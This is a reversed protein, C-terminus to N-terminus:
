TILLWINRPLGFKLWADPIMSKANGIRKTVLIFDLGQFQCVAMWLDERLGPPAENDAWDSMSNIFVRIRKGTCVAKRNLRNLAEHWSATPRREAGSGWKVGFRRGLKEAYCHDCGPGVKTCGIWLNVTADCWEIKTHESM